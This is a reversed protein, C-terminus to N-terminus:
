RKNFAASIADGLDPTKPTAKTTAEGEATEQGDLSKRAVIGLANETGELRDLVKELIENYPAVVAEVAKTVEAIAEASLAPAEVAPAAETAPAAEPPAVSKSVAEAVAEALAPVLAKNSEELITVLEDKEVNIEKDTPAGFIIGKVKAVIDPAAAAKTVMWGPLQNAPDDVGSVESILLKELRTQEM